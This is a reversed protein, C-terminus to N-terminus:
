LLIFCNTTGPCESKTAMHQYSSGYKEKCSAGGNIPFEKVTRHRNGNGCGQAQNSWVWKTWEHM